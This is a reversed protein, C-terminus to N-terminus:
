PTKKELSYVQELLLNTIDDAPQTLTKEQFHLFSRLPLDMLFNSLDIGIGGDESEAEGFFGGRTMM